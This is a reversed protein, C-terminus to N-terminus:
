KEFLHWHSLAVGNQIIGKMPNRACREANVFRQLCEDVQSHVKRINANQWRKSTQNM